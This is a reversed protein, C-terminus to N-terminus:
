KDCIILSKGLLSFYCGVSLNALFGVRSLSRLMGVVEIRFLCNILDNHPTDTHSQNTTYNISTSFLLFSFRGSFWNTARKVNATANAIIAPSGVVSCKM